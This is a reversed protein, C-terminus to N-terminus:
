SLLLMVNSIFGWRVERQTHKSKTQPVGKQLVLNQRAQQSRLQTMEREHCELINFINRVSPLTRMKLLSALFSQSREQFV